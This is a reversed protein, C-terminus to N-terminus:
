KALLDIAQLNKGVDLGKQRAQGLLRRAEDYRGKVIAVVARANLAEASDGARSLLTEAKLLDRQRLAV